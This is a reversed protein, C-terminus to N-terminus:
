FKAYCLPLISTYMYSAKVASIIYHVDSCIFVYFICQCCWQNFDVVQRKRQALDVVFENEALSDIIALHGGWDVCRARADSWTLGQTEVIYCSGGFM